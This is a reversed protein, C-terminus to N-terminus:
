RVSEETATTMDNRLDEITDLDVLRANDFVQAASKKQRLLENICLHAEDLDKM